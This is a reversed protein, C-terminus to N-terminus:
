RLVAAVCHSHGPDFDSGYRHCHFGSCHEHHVSPLVHVTELLEECRLSLVVALGTLCCYCCWRLCSGFGYPLQLHMGLSKRSHVALVRLHNWGTSPFCYLAVFSDSSTSCRLLLSSRPLPRASAPVLGVSQCSASHMSPFQHMRSWCPSSAQSMVLSPFAPPAGFLHSWNAGLSPRDIKM